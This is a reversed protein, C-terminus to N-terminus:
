KDQEDDRAKSAKYGCSARQFHIRQDGHSLVSTDWFTATVCHLRMWDRVTRLVDDTIRVGANAVIDFPATARPFGGANIAVLNRFSQWRVYPGIM